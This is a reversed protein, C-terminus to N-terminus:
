VEAGGLKIIPNNDLTNTNYIAEYAKELGEETGKYESIMIKPPDSVNDFAMMIIWNMYACQKETLYASKGYFSAVLPDDKTPKKVSYDFGLQMMYYALEAGTDRKVDYHLDRKKAAIKFDTLQEKTLSTEKNDYTVKYVRRFGDDDDIPTFGWEADFEETEKQAAIDYDATQKIITFDDRNGYVDVRYQSCRANTSVYIYIRDSKTKPNKAYFDRVADTTVAMLDITDDETVTVNYADSIRKRLSHFLGRICGADISPIVGGFFKREVVFNTNAQIM